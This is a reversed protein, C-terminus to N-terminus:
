PQSKELADAKQRESAAEAEKGQRELAKAMGRHAEVYNPDESLAEQYREIADVVQGKQLLSNGSNTSVLARQRSMAVRELDAGKKREAAAESANGQQALVTALTLHSDPQDPAQRIAERLAGAAESLKDMKRYLSGLTAWGDANNSHLQMALSLEGAAEDYRGSQMYLIGLTYHPEHASPNLKAATQLEAIAAANDDRLKLALGLNYHLQFSDPNTKLGSGLVGIAQDVENMQLYAAALNEHATADHPRGELTRELFPIANKADGAILLALGLSAGAEANKPEAEVVQRLLPVAEPDHNTRQLALALQYKGDAYASDLHIARRFAVIAQDDQNNAVYAKGLETAAVASEPALHSALTLEQIATPTQQQALLAVGLHVHAAAFRPDLRIAEQFESVAAPWSRQQAHLSGLSDHLEANQPSEAVAMKMKAVAAPVQGTAALSRAYAALVSSPLAPSSNAPLKERAEIEVKKFLVIAKNHAGTQEYALALNSQVSVDDPKLALANELQKIAQPFKGLRILVAGLASHGQEVQPVLRVVEELEAEATKFDNALAATTGARYAAQAQKNIDAQAGPTSASQAGFAVQTVLGLTLVLLIPFCHRKLVIPVRARDNGSSRHLTPYKRFAFGGRRPFRAGLSVVQQLRADCLIQCRDASFHAAEVRSYFCECRVALNGPFQPELERVLMEVKPESSTRESCFDGVRQVAFSKPKGNLHCCLTDHPNSDKHCVYLPVM